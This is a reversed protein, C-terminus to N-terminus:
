DGGRDYRYIVYGGIVARILLAAIVPGIPAGFASIMINILTSLGFALLENPSIDYETM